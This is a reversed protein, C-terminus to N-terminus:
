LFHCKLFTLFPIYLSDKELFSPTVPDTHSWSNNKKYSQM